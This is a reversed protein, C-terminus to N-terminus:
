MCSRRVNLNFFLRRIRHSANRCGKRASFFPALGSAYLGIPQVKKEALLVDQIGTQRANLEARIEQFEDEM